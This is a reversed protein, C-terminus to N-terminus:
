AVGVAGYARMLTHLSHDEFRLITLPALTVARVMRVSSLLSEVDDVPSAVLRAEVARIIATEHASDHTYLFCVRDLFTNEYGSLQHGMKWIIETIRDLSGADKYASEVELWDALQVLTGDSNAVSRIVLGDPLKKYARRLDAQRFEQSNSALAYEGYVDHGSILQEVLWATGLTRHFFTSGQMGRIPVGTRVPENVYVTAFRAGKLTLIYSLSGLANVRHAIYGEAELRRLLRTASVNRSRTNQNPWLIRM